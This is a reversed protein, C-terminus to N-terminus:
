CVLGVAATCYAPMADSLESRMYILGLLLMQQLHM